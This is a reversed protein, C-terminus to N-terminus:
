FWSSSSQNSTSTSSSSLSAGGIPSAAAGMGFYKGRRVNAHVDGASADTSTINAEKRSSPFLADASSILVTLEEIIAAFSPRMIQDKNWCSELLKKFPIPWSSDMKPRFNRLVVNDTFVEKTMGQFPVKDPRSMQWLLIGFSYVDAKESYPQDLAVEPAMYRLSGTNGTMKYSDTELQRKKIFTCLGFDFLKLTGDETFGINDPKLDRHIIMFSMHWVRHLYDLAKAVALAKNLASSFTTPLKRPFLKSAGTLVASKGRSNNSSALHRFLTGKELYELVIFRRPIQGSGLLKIINPHSVRSLVNYEMEFEHLAVRNNM